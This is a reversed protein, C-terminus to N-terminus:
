RLAAQAPACSAGGGGAQEGTMPERTPKCESASRERGRWGAQERTMPERTPRGELV